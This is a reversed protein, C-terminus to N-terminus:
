HQLFIYLRNFIAFYIFTFLTIYCISQPIFFDDSLLMKSSLHFPLSLSLLLLFSFPSLTFDKCWRWKRWRSLNVVIWLLKNAFKLPSFWLTSFRHYIVNRILFGVLTTLILAFRRASITYRSVLISVFFSIDKEKWESDLIFCKLWM